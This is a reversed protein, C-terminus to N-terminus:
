EPGPRGSCLFLLLLSIRVMLVQSKRRKKKKKYDAHKQELWQARSATERPQAETNM